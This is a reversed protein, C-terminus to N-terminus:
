NVQYLAGAPLRVLSREIVLGVGFRQVVLVVTKTYWKANQTCEPSSCYFDIWYSYSFHRGNWWRTRYIKTWTVPCVSANPTLDLHQLTRQRVNYALTVDSMANSKQKLGTIRRGAGVLRTGAM